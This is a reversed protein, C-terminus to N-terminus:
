SLQTHLVIYKVAQQWVLGLSFRNGHIALSVEVIGNYRVIV